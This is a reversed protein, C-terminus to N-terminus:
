VNLKALLTNFQREDRKGKKTEIEQDVREGQITIKRINSTTEKILELGSDKKIRKQSETKM